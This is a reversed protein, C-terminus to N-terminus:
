DAPHEWQVDIHDEARRMRRAAARAEAAGEREVGDEDGEGKGDPADDDDGDVGKDGESDVRGGCDNDGATVDVDLEALEDDELLLLEGGVVVLMLTSVSGPGDTMGAVGYAKAGKGDGDEPGGM